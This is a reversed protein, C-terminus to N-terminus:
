PRLASRSARWMTHERSIAEEADAVATAWVKEDDVLRLDSCVINLENAAFAYARSLSYHQKISLWAVGTGVMTAAVGALDVNIAGLGRFIAAVVGLLETMVLGITWRQARSANWGAKRSYWEQQDTIREDLYTKKRIEFTSQRLVRMAESVAPGASAGITTKPADDLLQRLQSIFAREVGGEDGQKAFPAAAVAFRWALTKASEALARGDYWTQEPHEALLWVEVLAAGVLAVAAALAAVDFSVPTVHVSFVGCIGAVVLLALRLRSARLYRAQGGLSAEDAARFLGPLATTPLSPPRRVGADGPEPM